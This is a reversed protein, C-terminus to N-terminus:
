RFTGVLCSFTQRNRPRANPIRTSSWFHSSTGTSIVLFRKNSLIPPKYLFVSLNIFISLSFKYLGFFIICAQIFIVFFICTMVVFNICTMSFYYLFLVLIICARSRLSSRILRFFWISLYVTLSVFVASLLFFWIYISRVFTSRNFFSSGM